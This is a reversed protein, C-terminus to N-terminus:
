PLKTGFYESFKLYYPRSKAIKCYCYEVKIYMVNNM